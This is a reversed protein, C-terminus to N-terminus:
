GSRTSSARSVSRRNRKVEDVYRQTNREWLRISEESLRVATLNEDLYMVATDKPHAKSVWKAFPEWMRPSFKEIEWGQSVQVVKGDRVVLEFSSGGFPGRGIEGSRLAHFDFPCRISGSASNGVQECSHLTQEYGTAELWSILLRPDDDAGMSAITADDALYTRVQDVDFAGFAELFRTAVREAGANVTNEPAQPVAPAQATAPADDRTQAVAVLVIAIALLAIAAMGLLVIRSPRRPERSVNTAEM